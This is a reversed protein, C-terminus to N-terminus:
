SPVDSVWPDNPLDPEPVASPRNLNYVDIHKAEFV